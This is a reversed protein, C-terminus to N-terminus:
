LHLKSLDGHNYSYERIKQIYGKDAQKYADGIRKLLESPSYVSYDRTSIANELNEQHNVYPKLWQVIMGDSIIDALEDVDEDLVDVDFVRLVHDASGVLDYKCNKRFATIARRLYGDITTTRNEESMKLFDYEKIKSLFADVFIDYSLSM